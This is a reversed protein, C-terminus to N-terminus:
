WRRLQTSTIEFPSEPSCNWEITWKFTNLTEKYGFILQKATASPYWFPLNTMKVYDGPGAGAVASLITAVESRTLDVVISPYREDLATGFALLQAAHAALQADLEAIIKLHKRKRGVGNPPFNVSMPGSTLSTNVKSGKHRRVTVDNKTKQDDKVPVPTDALQSTAYNLTVAPTQNIMSIRTRYGFGWLDRAEELMGQDLDRVEELFDQLRKRTHPGMRPHIRVNDIYIQVGNALTGASKISV